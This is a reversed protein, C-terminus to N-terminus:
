KYLLMQVQTYGLIPKYVNQMQKPPILHNEMLTGKLLFDVMIQLLHSIHLLHLLSFPASLNRVLMKMGNHHLIQILIQLLM